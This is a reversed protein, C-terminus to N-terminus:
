DDYESEYELITGDSADITFEYEIRDKYFEIEYEMRGHEEELKIKTFFVETVSFGAHDVAIEKARDEGILSDANGTQNGPNRFVEQSRDMIVGTAANIEYEYEMDSTHFDIDYVAVGDDWDLKEKTFTVEEETLGADALAIAKASDMTDVQGSQSNGSANQSGPQEGAGGVQGPQSSGSASQDGAGGEQGSPSSDPVQGSGANGSQGSQGSQGENQMDISESPNEGDGAQEQEAGTQEGVGGTQGPQGGGSLANISVGTVAGSSADIEYYYAYEGSTFAIEYCADGDEKELEQRTVTIEGAALGADALAYELAEKRDMVRKGCGTGVAAVIVSVATLVAMKYYMRFSRRGIRQKM